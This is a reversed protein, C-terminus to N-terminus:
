PNALKAITTSLLQVDPPDASRECALEVLLAGTPPADVVAVAGVVLVVVLSIVEALVAAGAQRPDSRWTVRPEDSPRPPVVYVGRIKLFRDEEPQVNVPWEL